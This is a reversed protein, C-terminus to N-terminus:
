RNGLLLVCGRSVCGDQENEGLFFVRELQNVPFLELQRSRFRVYINITSKVKTNINRKLPLLELLVVEKLLYVNFSSSKFYKVRSM